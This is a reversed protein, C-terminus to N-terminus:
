RVRAEYSSSSTSLRDKMKRRVTKEGDDEIAAPPIEEYEAAATRQRRRVWEGDTNGGSRACWDEWEKQQSKYV